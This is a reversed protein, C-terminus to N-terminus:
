QISNDASGMDKTMRSPGIVRFENMIVCSPCTSLLLLTGLWENGSNSHIPDNLM